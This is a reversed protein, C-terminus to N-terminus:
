SSSRLNLSSSISAIMAAPDPVNAPDVTVWVGPAIVYTLLPRPAPVLAGAPPTVRATSAGIAELVATELDTTATGALAAQVQALSLGEGQLAKVAVVQLLHRYGYVAVRGEYRLPRDLVGVTQYYRVTREDPAQRVRDDGQERLRACLAAAAAVLSPLSFTRDAFDLLPM